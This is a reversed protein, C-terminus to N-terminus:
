AQTIALALAVVVAALFIEPQFEKGLLVQIIGAIMLALIIAVLSLIVSGGFVGFNKLGKIWKM